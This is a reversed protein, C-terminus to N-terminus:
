AFLETGVLEVMAGAWEDISTAEVDYQEQTIRGGLLRRDLRTMSREIQDEIEAESGYYPSNRM